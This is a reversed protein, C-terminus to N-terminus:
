LLYDALAYFKVLCLLPVSRSNLGMQRGQSSGLFFIQLLPNFHLLLTCFYLHHQLDCCIHLESQMLQTM